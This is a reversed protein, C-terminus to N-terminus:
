KKSSSRRMPKLYKEPDELVIYEHQPEEGPESAM